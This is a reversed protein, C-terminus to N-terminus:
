YFWLPPFSINTKRVQWPEAVHSERQTELFLAGAEMAGALMIALRQCPNITRSM